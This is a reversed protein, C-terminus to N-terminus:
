RVYNKIIQDFQEGDLIKTQIPWYYLMEQLETYGQLRVFDKETTLILADEGLSKWFKMIKQVDAPTFDHHDRFSLHRAEANIEKIKQIFPAPNAIGTVALVPRQALSEVRLVTDAEATKLVPSYEITSFFVRQGSKLPMQASYKKQDTLSLEPPCKTVVILDARRAARRSERLDGAPLLFDRFYPDGYETLLISLGPKIARHQMADDLILVEVGLNAILRRAGPVRKESVAIVLRNKFRRFLQMAEDGVDSVRSAYNVVLYGRTKRGYGRSLVGVRHDGALLSVLHMVMPSKGSGGVSLNGVSIIPTKFRVSRFLGLDYSLNRLGTGLGYLLSFPLLYWRKIRTKKM